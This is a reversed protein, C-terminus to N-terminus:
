NKPCTVEKVAALWCDECSMVSDIDRCDKAQYPPPPCVKEFFSLLWDREREVQEIDSRRPLANWAAVAEQETMEETLPGRMGCGDCFVYVGGSMDAAWLTAPHGCYPCLKLEESM